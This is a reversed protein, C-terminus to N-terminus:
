IGCRAEKEGPTRNKSCNLLYCSDPKMSTSPINCKPIYITLVAWQQVGPQLSMIKNPTIQKSETVIGNRQGSAVWCSLENNAQTPVPNPVNGQKAKSKALLTVRVQPTTLCLPATQPEWSMCHLCGGAQNLQRGEKFWCWQGFLSRSAKHGFSNSWLRNM